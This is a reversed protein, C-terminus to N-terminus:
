PQRNKEVREAKSDKSPQEDSTPEQSDTAATFRGKEIQDELAEVLPDTNVFERKIGSSAQNVTEQTESLIKKVDQTGTEKSFETKLQTTLRRIHKIWGGVTTLLSPLRDPGVVLLAILLILALEWFGFDSM